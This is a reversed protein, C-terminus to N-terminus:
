DANRPARRTLKDLINPARTPDPRIPEVAGGVPPQAPETEQATTGGQSGDPADPQDEESAAQAGLRQSVYYNFRRYQITLLPREATDSLSRLYRWIRKQRHGDRLAAEIEPWWAQVERAGTGARGRHTHRYGEPSSQYEKRDQDNLANSLNRRAM